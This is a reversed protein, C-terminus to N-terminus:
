KELGLVFRSFVPSYNHMCTHLQTSYVSYLSLFYNVTYCSIEALSFNLSNVRKLCKTFFTQHILLDALLNNIIHVSKSLKLKTFWPCNVLEDFKGAIRYKDCLKKYDYMISCAPDLRTYGFGAIWKSLFEIDVPVLFYWHIILYGSEPASIHLALYSYMFCRAKCLFLKSGEAIVELVTFLM